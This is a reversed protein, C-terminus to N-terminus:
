HTVAGAVGLGALLLAILALGRRARAGIVIETAEQRDAALVGIGCLLGALTIAPMEWDWDLGAHVLYAVYSAAGVATPPYDRAKAAAFIPVGLACILLLLGVPGIEALTELYLSHADLVVSASKERLWYLAFTGAGSGLWINEMWQHVAVNWYDARQGLPRDARVAAAVVFMLIGTLTALVIQRPVAHARADISKWRFITLVCLGISLAFWAGRSETQILVLILVPLPAVWAIREAKSVASTALGLSLLTGLTAFIGLANAYGFPEILLTGQTPDRGPPAGLLRDGLGYAAVVITAAAIGSFWERLRDRDVLLAAALFGAVYVLAREAEKITEAPTLSWTASLAVWGVFSALAALGILELRGLVITDRLLLTIWILCTLALTTWVWTERFYGGDAFAVVTVVTFGSFFTAASPTSGRARM